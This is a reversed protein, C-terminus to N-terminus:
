PAPYVEITTGADPQQLLSRLAHELTPFIQFAPHDSLGVIEFLRYVKKNCGIVVLRGDPPFRSVTDLMVALGGSDVYESKTLDLALRDGSGLSQTVAARFAGASAHDLHEEIGLLPMGELSETRIEVTDGEM